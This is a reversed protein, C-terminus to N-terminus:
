PRQLQAYLWACSHLGALCTAAPTCCLQCGDVCHWALSAPLLQRTVSSAPEASRQPSITPLTPLSLSSSPHSLHNTCSQQLHSNLHHSSSCYGGVTAIQKVATSPNHARKPPNKTSHGVAALRQPQASATHVKTPISRLQKIQETCDAVM